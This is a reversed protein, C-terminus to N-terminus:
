RRQTEDREDAAELWLEKLDKPLQSFIDWAEGEKGTPSGLLKQLTAFVAKVSREAEADDPLGAFRRIRGIFEERHVKDVGRGPRENDLWLPKLGTPLQAAVDAAEKPTLRDRLQQFVALTVGEARQADCKLRRSVSEFFEKKDM